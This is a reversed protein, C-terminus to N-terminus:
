PAAPMPLVLDKGAKGGGAEAWANRAAAVMENWRETITYDGNRKAAVQTTVEEFGGFFHLREAVEADAFGGTGHVVDGGVMTLVSTLDKIEAAPISFYDSSLVALDAYEGPAIAGKVAQEGSFWASGKTWLRLAQERDLRREEPYLSLGGLTKGSVLWYLSVWPNFSAVRTADTGAGVPVGAALMETIPPTFQAEDAGYRQVFYEGQFAMRHQIAIGGGLALERRRHGRAVHRRYGLVDRLSHDDAVLGM